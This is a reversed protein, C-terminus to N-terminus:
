RPSTDPEACCEDLPRPEWGVVRRRADLEIRCCREIRERVTRRARALRSTVTSRPIGLRAAAEGHTLGEFETLEVVEQLPPELTRLFPRLWSSVERAAGDSELEGPDVPSDIPEPLASADHEHPAVVPAAARRRHHDTIACRVVRHVFGSLHRVDAGSKLIRLHVDQVVDDVDGAPVRRAIFARVREVYELEESPM